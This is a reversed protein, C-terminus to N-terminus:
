EFWIRSISVNNAYSSISKWCHGGIAFNQMSSISSINYEYIISTSINSTYSALSVGAATTGIDITGYGINLPKNANSPSGSGISCDSFQIKLKSFASVNLTDNIIFGAVGHGDNNPILSYFLTNTYKVATYSGNIGGKDPTMTITERGYWYISHDPFINVTQLSNNSLTIIKEYNNSITENTIGKAVNSVFKYAGGESPVTIQCTGVDSESSFVCIGVLNNDSDYIYIKDEKAGNITLTVTVTSSEQTNIWKGSESDYVLIDGDQPTIINTDDLEALSSSGGGMSAQLFPM